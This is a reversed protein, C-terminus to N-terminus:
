VTGSYACFFYRVIPDAELRTVLSGGLALQPRHATIAALPRPADLAIAAPARKGRWRGRSFILGLTLFRQEELKGGRSHRELPTTARDNM